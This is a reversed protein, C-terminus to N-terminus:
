VTCNLTGSRLAHRSTNDDDAWLVAKKGNVCSPSIAFGELNVNPLKAPRDYTATVKFKGGSIALTTTRGACNDDCIAWLKGGDFELDMVQRHGSAFKTLLTASTGQLAYVYVEGTAELGVFFLGSGHGPYDAPDYTRGASDQFGNRTLFSDPVWSIAEPGDNPDVEPMGGLDWEAAATSGAGLKLIKPTSVDSDDNDREVAVFLGNPTFVVGETDPDGQGAPFRLSRKQDVKWTGDGGPVLRYLTSPGNKVAWVVDPSEFSVGSLNTGFVNTGDAVKTASGGPWTTAADATSAALGLALVTFVGIAKIRLM